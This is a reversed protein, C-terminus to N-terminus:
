PGPVTSSAPDLPNPHFTLRNTDGLLASLTTEIAAAMMAQGHMDPHLAPRPPMLRPDYFLSTDLKGNKFYIQGIDLVTVFASQRYDIALRANIATDNAAKDPGLDTPLIGLVLVKTEPLRAHIEAVDAEIGELTQQWSWDRHNNTNNTGILLVTVRPQIGDVEGHQLRWLVHETEDGSFGLNIANRAGYFFEWTPEFSEDAPPGPKDYNHTISDGIFLLDCHDQQVRGLKQEHREMWWGLGSRPIPIVAPNAPQTQSTPTAPAQARAPPVFPIALLVLSLRRFSKAMLFSEVAYKRFRLTASDLRDRGWQGSGM